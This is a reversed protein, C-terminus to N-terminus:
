KGFIMSKSKTEKSVKNRKILSGFWTNKRVPPQRKEEPDSDKTEKAPEDTKEAVSGPLYVNWYVHQTIKDDLTGWVVAPSVCHLSYASHDIVQWADNGDVPSWSCDCNL